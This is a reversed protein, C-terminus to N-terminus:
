TTKDGVAEVFGAFDVLGHVEYGLLSLAEAPQVYRDYGNGNVFKRVLAGDVMVYTSFNSLAAVGVSVTIKETEGDAIRGEYEANDGGMGRSIGVLWAQKPQVVIKAKKTKDM